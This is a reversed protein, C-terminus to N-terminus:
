NRSPAAPVSQLYMWRAELEVDTMRQAYPAMMSMPARLVTGDPRRAERLAAVFQEFTWGGLGTADPTLNMAPPWSPDGGVIPGGALDSRHCGSCLAGLQRGFEVTVAAAPPMAAHPGDAHDIMDASLVLKGTALLVKGIPGLTPPPVDNDVPPRAQVFVVIDSLEQDSMRYFDESPMAAPRGDPLIGHRVIRDWDAPRYGVTRSGSGGTLNPGLLRGIAPDDIMVGGSLDAGHCETCVYRADILHKGRALAEDRAARAAAEPNLHRREIEAPSLPFPIPFDVTHTTYTRALKGSAARSAALYAAAGLLLFVAVVGAVIKLIKKV